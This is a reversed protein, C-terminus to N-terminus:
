VVDVVDSPKNFRYVAWCYDLYEMISVPCFIWLNLAQPIALILLLHWPIFFGVLGTICFTFIMLAYVLGVQFKYSKIESKEM